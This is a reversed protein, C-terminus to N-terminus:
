SLPQRLRTFFAAREDPTLSQVHLLLSNDKIQISTLKVPLGRRDDYPLFITPDASKDALTALLLKTMAAAVGPGNTAGTLDDMKARRQMSPLRPELASSVRQKQGTWLSTPMPLRGALVRQLQLHLQGADDLSPQFHLSVVAGLPNITPALVLRD